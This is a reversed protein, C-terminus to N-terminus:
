RLALKGSGTNLLDRISENYVELYSLRLAFAHEAEAKRREEAERRRNEAAEAMRRKREEEEKRKKEEEEPAPEVKSTRDSGGGWGM